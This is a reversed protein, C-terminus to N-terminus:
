GGLNQRSSQGTSVNSGPKHGCISEENPSSTIPRMPNSLRFKSIHKGNEDALSLNAQTAYETCNFPRTKLSQQRISADTGNSDIPFETINSTTHHQSNINDIEDISGNSSEYDGNALYILLLPISLVILIFMILIFLCCHLKTNSVSSSLITSM